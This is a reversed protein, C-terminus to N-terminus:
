RREGRLAGRLKSMARAYALTTQPRGRWYDEADAEFNGAAFLLAEAEGKTLEVTIKM